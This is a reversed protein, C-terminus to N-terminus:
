DRPLACAPTGGPLLHRYRAIFSYGLAAAWSFPPTALIWGAFRLGVRPQSRLLASFALHGAYQHKPTLYWAFDQVDHPTLGLADLDAWQYPTTPPFRPLVAELRNVWTTCFACDGDFVLLGASTPTSTGPRAM